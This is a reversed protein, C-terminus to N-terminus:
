LFDSHKGIKEQKIGPLFVSTLVVDEGTLHVFLCFSESSNCLSTSLLWFSLLRATLKENLKWCVLDTSRLRKTDTVCM